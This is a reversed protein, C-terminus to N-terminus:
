DAYVFFKYWVFNWILGTVVALVKCTNRAVFDDDFRNGGGGIGM